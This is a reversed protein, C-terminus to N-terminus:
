DTVSCGPATAAATDSDAHVIILIRHAGDRESNQLSPDFRSVRHRKAQCWYTRDQRRKPRPLEGHEVAVADPFDCDRDATIRGLLIPGQYLRDTIHTGDATSQMSSLRAVRDAGPSRVPSTPSEFRGNASIQDDDGATHSQRRQSGRQEIDEGPPIAVAANHQDNTGTIRAFEQEAVLEVEPGGCRRHFGHERDVCGGCTPSTLDAEHGLRKGAYSDFRPRRSREQTTWFGHHAEAGIHKDVLSDLGSANSERQFAIHLASDAQATVALKTRKKDAAVSRHDAVM